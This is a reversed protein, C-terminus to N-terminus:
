SVGNVNSSYKCMFTISTRDELTREVHSQKHEGCTAPFVYRGLDIGLVSYHVVGWEISWSGCGAVGNEVINAHVDYTYDKRAESWLM